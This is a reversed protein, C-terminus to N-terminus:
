VTTANDTANDTASGATGSTDEGDTAGETQTGGDDTSSPASCGSSALCAAIFCLSGRLTLTSM